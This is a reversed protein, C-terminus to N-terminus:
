NFLFPRFSRLYTHTSYTYLEYGFKIVTSVLYVLLNSAFIGPLETYLNVLTLLWKNSFSSCALEISVVNSVQFFVSLMM